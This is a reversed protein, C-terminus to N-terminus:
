LAGRGRGITARPLPPAERPDVWAAGPLDGAVRAGERGPPRTTRQQSRVPTGLCVLARSAGGASSWARAHADGATRAPLRRRARRLRSLPLAGPGQGGRPRVRVRALGGAGLDKGRRGPVKARSGGPRHARRPRCGGPRGGPGPAPWRAWLGRQGSCDAGSGALDVRVLPAGWGWPQGGLDSDQAAITAEVRTGFLASPQPLWFALPRDKQGRLHEGRGGPPGGWYACPRGVPERRVGAEGRAGRRPVARRNKDEQLLVQGAGEQGTPGPGSPAGSCLTPGRLPASPGLGVPRQGRLGGESARVGM